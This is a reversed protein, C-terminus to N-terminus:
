NQRIRFWEFLPNKFETSVSKFSLNKKDSFSRNSLKSNYVSFTLNGLKHVCDNQITEAFTQDGKALMSIWSVQPTFHEADFLPTKSLDM